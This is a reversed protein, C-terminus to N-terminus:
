RTLHHRRDELKLQRLDQLASELLLQLVDAKPGDQEKWLLMNLHHVNRELVYLSLERERDPPQNM